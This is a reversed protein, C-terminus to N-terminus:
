WPTWARFFKRCVESLEFKLSNLASLSQQLAELDHVVALSFHGFRCSRCDQKSLNQLIRESCCCTCKDPGTGSRVGGFAMRSWLSLSTGSSELKLCKIQFWQDVPSPCPVCIRALQPAGAAPCVAAEGVGWGRKTELHKANGKERGPTKLM